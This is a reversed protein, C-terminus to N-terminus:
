LHSIHPSDSTYVSSCKKFHSVSYYTLLILLSMSSTGTSCHEEIHHLHSACGHASIGRQRVRSSISPTSTPDLFHRPPFPLPLHNHRLVFCPLFSSFFCLFTSRTSLSFQFIIDSPQTLWTIIWGLSLLSLLGPSCQAFQQVAFTTCPRLARYQWIHTM